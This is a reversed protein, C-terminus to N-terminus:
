KLKNLRMIILEALREPQEALMQHGANALVAVDVRDSYASKLAESNAPPAFADEAGQIIYLPAKGAEIWRDTPIKELAAWLDAGVDRHWGLRWAEPSNGTAFYAVRLAEMFQAQSLAPNRLNRQAAQAQPTPPVQGGAALLILSSVAEPHFSALARAIRNGFAHGIIVAGNTVAGAPSLQRIVEVIDQLHETIQQFRPGRSNGMGRPNIAATRYGARAIRSALDDFDSAARSGAPLLAVLPGDGRVLAEIVVLEGSFDLYSVLRSTPVISPSPKEIQALAISPLFCIAGGCGLATRRNVLNGTTM